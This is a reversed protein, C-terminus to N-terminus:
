SFESFNKISFLINLYAHKASALGCVFYHLEDKQLYRPSLCVVLLNDNLFNIYSNELKRIAMELM